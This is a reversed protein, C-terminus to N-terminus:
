GGKGERERKEIGMRVKEELNIFRSKYSIRRTRRVGKFKRSRPKSVAESLTERTECMRPNVQSRPKLLEADM